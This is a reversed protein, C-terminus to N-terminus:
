QQPLAALERQPEHRLPQRQQYHQYHGAPRRGECNTGNVFFAFVDNFDSHVFENYEDSAFVYNFVSAVAQRSSTSNLVSADFTDFGALQTLAPDGAAQNATSVGDELNPGIVGSIDGSSLM